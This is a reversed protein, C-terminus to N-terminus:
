EATTRQSNEMELIRSALKKINTDGLTIQDHAWAIIADTLFDPTLNRDVYDSNGFRAETALDQFSVIPKENFHAM